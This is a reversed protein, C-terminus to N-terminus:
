RLKHRKLELTVWVSRFTREAEKLRNCPLGGPQHSSDDSLLQIEELGQDPYVLIAEPNFGRLDVEKLHRPTSDVGSWAYLKSKGVGDYPGAIILYKGESCAMDRIGLGNLDLQIPQGIRAEGGGIVEAPNELPVVLARGGPIPNRFGILLRGDPTACLGEINLAGPEKPPLRSAMELKYAKLSPAASLDRLLNKYPKGVFSIKVTGNTLELRTAFLRCRNPHEKGLHNRSHSTIWYVRDGIRAAGEIDTEPARRELELQVTLDVVQVPPGGQRRHYVRLQNSEDDAVVFLDGGAAAGASGGCSGSYVVVDSAGPEISSKSAL